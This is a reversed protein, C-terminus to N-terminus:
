AAVVRNRGAHKAAYLARDAINILAEICETEPGATAVGISATVQLQAGGVEPQLAAIALRLREAVERATAAATEPLLVIFEEGGYRAVVDLQRLNERCTQALLRLVQDGADHGHTDNIRKFHDVDLLLLSLERNYRQSRIFESEAREMFHRRNPLRTLGDTTALSELEKILQANDLAVSVQNAMAACINISQSGFPRDLRGVLLLRFEGAGGTLPVALYHRPKGDRNAADLGAAEEAALLLPQNSQRLHVLCAPQSAPWQALHAAEDDHLGRFAALQLAGDQEAYFIAREYDTFYLLTDILREGIARPDRLRSVSQILSHVAEAWVRKQQEDALAHRRALSNRYLRLGTLLLILTLAAYLMYAWGTRWPPPLMTLRLRAERKGWVGDNNTGRVRFVYEGPDLNTYTAVHRGVVQHWGSDFGDLKYLFRNKDPAAYDLAAFTFSLISDRYGLTLHHVPGAPTHLPMPRDLRTFGTIHVQPPTANRQLHAPYFATLGNIGGFFLEGDPSQYVAGGNFENSQLGDTVDYNRVAGTAPDFDSLGLDSSLWLHGRRDRALAYVNNNPLGNDTTYATFRTGGPPLKDLGDSTGLWLTGDPTVLCSQVTRGSLSDPEDPRPRYVQFRDHQGDFAGLGNGTGVWLRDDPGECLAYVSAGPLSDARNPDHVFRRLVRGTTRDFLVLGQGTGVWLRGERDEFIVNVTDGLRNAHKGALLTFRQFRDAGPLFRYLGYDSGAWIVGRRDGYIFNAVNDDAQGKPRDGFRYQTYRTRSADMRTIGGDSAVWVDGRADKYIGWIDNSALSNPDGQRHRYYGFQRTVPNFISIGATDTGIWILGSADRYMSAIGNGSLSAPDTADHQYVTFRGSSRDLRSVGGFATGVWIDGASDELLARVRGNPLSHPDGARHQYLARVRGDLSMAVLGKETALWLLGDRTETIANVTTHTLLTRALPALPAPPVFPALRDAKPDYTYLRHTAGVWLRRRSDEFLAWVNSANPEHLPIAYHIFRGAVPDFRELDRDTGVWLRGEHDRWVTNITNSALSGPDDQRHSYHRFRDTGPALYDLGVDATGIWLGGDRDAYLATINNGALSAADHPVHRYTRFVYGDYRQLGDQTGFWMYGDRDQTIAQVTSQALGNQIGIHRFRLSSGPPVPAAVAAACLLALAFGARGCPVPLGRRGKALGGESSHDFRQPM